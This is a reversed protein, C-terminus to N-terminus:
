RKSPRTKGWCSFAKMSFFPKLKTLAWIIDHYHSYYSTRNSSNLGTVWLNRKIYTYENQTTCTKKYKYWRWDDHWHPTFVCTHYITNMLIGKFLQQQNHDNIWFLKIQTHDVTSNTYTPLQRRADVAKCAGQPAMVGVAEELLDVGSILSCREAWQLPRQEGKFTDVSACMGMCVCVCMRSVVTSEHLASHHNISAFHYSFSPM